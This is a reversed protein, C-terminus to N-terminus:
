VADAREGTELKLVRDALALSAPRHTILIVTRQHLLEHCDAIFAEEGAPDFMATAEDLILIAPNRLLTRALSLRQRQGGSLRVGQDGIITDYGEPLERIFADAHAARAAAEIRDRSVAPEGYAINEAVSGNVLLVHQAVLGVRSRVSALTRHRIDTSDILM